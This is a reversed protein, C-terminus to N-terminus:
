GAVPALLLWEWSRDGLLQQQGGTDGLLYAQGDPALLLGSLPDYPAVVAGPAGSSTSSGTAGPSPSTTGSSSAELKPNQREPHNYGEGKGTYNTATDDGAPRPANRAGRVDSGTPNSPGGQDPAACWTDLNAPGNWDQPRNTRRKTTEYGSNCVKTNPNPAAVLGFHAYGGASALFGNAVNAPYLVLLSKLGPVRAAQIQGLTVFNSLFVPLQTRNDQLLQQLEAASQIGGDITRRIDPDSTVIQQSLSALNDAFTRIDGAVARQTDLVTKGDNILQVTEPLSQQAAKTLANGSDILTQLAPGTDKFAAGLETIVTSLHERDVSNVLKDLNLLLTADDLPISTRNISIESGDHLFPGSDTQPQLDVYQEGVASLNGVSATTDAPIRKHSPDIKLEVAVGQPVLRLAGVRGITVGRDTVEAGSFIGGSDKFYATVTYPSAGVNFGVYKAGTYAIGTIALLVFVVLQIKVTRRIV